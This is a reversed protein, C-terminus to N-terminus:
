KGYYFTAASANSTAVSLARRAAALATTSRAAVADRLAVRALIIRMRLREHGGTRRRGGGTRDVAPGLEPPAQVAEFVGQRRSADFRGLWGTRATVAVLSGTAVVTLRIGVCAAFTMGVVIPTGALWQGYAARVVVVVALVLAIRRHGM